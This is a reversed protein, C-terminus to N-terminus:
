SNEARAQEDNLREAGRERSRASDGSEAWASAAEMVSIRRCCEHVLARFRCM